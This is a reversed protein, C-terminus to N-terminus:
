RLARRLRGVGIRRLPLITVSDVGRWRLRQRHAVAADRRDAARGLDARQGPGARADDIEAAARDDRAQDVRVDVGDAGAEGVRGLHVPDAHAREGLREAADAVLGCLRGSPSTAQPRRRSSALPLEGFSRRRGLGLDGGGRGIM